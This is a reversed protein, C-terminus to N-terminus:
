EARPYGWARWFVGFRWCQLAQRVCPSWPRQALVKADGAEMPQCQLCLRRRPRLRRRHQPLLSHRRRPRLSGLCRPRLSCRDRPRLRRRCRRHLSHRHRPRLCRCHCRLATARWCWTTVILMQHQHRLSITGSYWGCKTLMEQLMDSFFTRLKISQLQWEVTDVPCLYHKRVHWCGSVGHQGQRAPCWCDLLPTSSRSRAM